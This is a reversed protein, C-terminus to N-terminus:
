GVLVAMGEPRVEALAKAILDELLRQLGVLLMSLDVIPDADRGALIELRQVGVPSRAHLPSVVGRSARAPEIQPLSAAHLQARRETWVASLRDEERLAIPQRHIQEQGVDGRSANHALEGRGGRACPEVAQLHKTRRARPTGVAVPEHKGSHTLAVRGQDQDRHTLTPLVALQHELFQALNQCWRPRRVPREIANEAIAPPKVSRYETSREVRM